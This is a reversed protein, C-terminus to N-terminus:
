RNNLYFTPSEDRAVMGKLLTVEGLFRTFVERASLVSMDIVEFKAKPAARELLKGFEGRGQQDVM